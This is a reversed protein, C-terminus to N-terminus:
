AHMLACISDIVGLILTYIVKHLMCTLKGSEFGFQSHIDVILGNRKWSFKYCHLRNFAHLHTSSSLNVM